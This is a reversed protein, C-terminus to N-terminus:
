GLFSIKWPKVRMLRPVRLPHRFRPSTQGLKAGWACPNRNSLHRNIAITAGDSLDVLVSLRNPELQDSLTIGNPVIAVEVAASLGLLVVPLGSTRLKPKLKPPKPPKPKTV